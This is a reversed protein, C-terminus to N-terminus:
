VDGFLTRLTDVLIAAKITLFGFFTPLIELSGSKIAMVMLVAFLGVRAPGGLRRDGDGISQISRDLMRFYLLGGGAGLLYSLATNLSYAFGIVVFAFAAIVVVTLYIRRRLAHYDAMSDGVMTPQSGEAPSESLM